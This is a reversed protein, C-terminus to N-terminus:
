LLPSHNFFKNYKWKQRRKKQKTKHSATKSAQKTKSQETTTTQTSKEEDSLSEPFLEGAKLYKGIVAQVDDQFKKADEKEHNGQVADALNYSFVITPIKKYKWFDRRKKKTLQQLTFVTHHYLSGLKSMEQKYQELLGCLNQYEQLPPLILAQLFSLPHESLANWINMHFYQATIVHLAMM